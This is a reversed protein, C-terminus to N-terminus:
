AREEKYVYAQYINKSDDMPERAIPAHDEMYKRITKPLDEKSSTIYTRADSVRKSKMSVFFEYTQGNKTFEIIHKINDYALRM